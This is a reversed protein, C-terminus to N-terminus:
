VEPFRGRDGGGGRFRFEESSMSTTATHIMETVPLRQEAKELDSLSAGTAPSRPTFGPLLEENPSISIPYTDIGKAMEVIEEKDMAILPRLVPLSAAADQVVLNKLTQSAVQGVADGTVLALAGLKRAIQDAIRTMLRRYIVVRLPAPVLSMIQQQTEGLPVFYLWLHPQYPLLVEAIQRAKEISTHSLIPYGHFHMWLTSCGRKMMRYAAVPADIGGSVLCAVEGSVGVPLGGLGPVKEFFFFAEKSLMEVHITLAPQSLNVPWGRVDHIHGGIEQEIQQSTFPFRKDSRRASVRFSSVQREGLAANIHRALSAIDPETRTAPSFNAIGFVRELRSRLTDWSTRTGLLLEVRAPLVRVSQVDLDFTVNKINQVLRKVFQPRNRGKLAIEHYHIIASIM